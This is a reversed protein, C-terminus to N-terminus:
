SLTRLVSSDINEPFRFEALTVISIFVGESFGSSPLELSFILRPLARPMVLQRSPIDIEERLWAAEM